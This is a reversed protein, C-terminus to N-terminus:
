LKLSPCIWENLSFLDLHKGFTYRCCPLRREEDKWKWKVLSLDSKVVCACALAMYSKVKQDSTRLLGSIHKAMSILIFEGTEDTFVNAFDIQGDIIQFALYFDVFFEQFSKHLFVCRTCPKSKMGGQQFSLLGFNDMDKEKEFYWKGKHLSDLSM